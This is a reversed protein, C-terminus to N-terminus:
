AEVEADKIAKDLLAIIDKHTTNSDDNYVVLQGKSYSDLIPSYNKLYEYAKDAAASDDVRRIAGMICFKCAESSRISCQSGLKDRSYVNQTWKDPTGILERTAKLHELLTM